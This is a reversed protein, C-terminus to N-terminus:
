LWGGKERRFPGLNPIDGHTALHKFDDGDLKLDDAKFAAKETSGHESGHVM